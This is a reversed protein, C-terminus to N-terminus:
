RRPLWDDATERIEPNTSKKGFAVLRDALGQDGLLDALELLRLYEWDDALNLSEFAAQEINELVWARPLALVRERGASINRIHQCECALKLAERLNEITAM